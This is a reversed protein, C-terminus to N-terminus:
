IISVKKLVNQLNEEEAKKLLAFKRVKREASKDDKSKYYAPPDLFLNWVDIKRKQVPLHHHSRYRQGRGIIQQTLANTWTPDSIVIHRVGKLDMSEAGADTILIVNMNKSTAGSAGKGESNSSIGQNFEKLLERWDIKYEKFLKVFKELLFETPKGEFSSVVDEFLVPDVLYLVSFGTFIYSKKSVEPTNNLVSAVKRYVEGLARRRQMPTMEDSKKGDKFRYSRLTDILTFNAFYTRFDKARIPISKLYEKLQCQTMRENGCSWLSSTKKAHKSHICSLELLNEYLLPHKKKSIECRNMKGSKGLFAITLSDAGTKDDVFVHRKQLTSVGYHPRDGAMEANEDGKPKNWGPRFTCVRMLASATAAMSKSSIISKGNKHIINKMDNKVKESFSIWFEHTLSALRMIKVFEQQNTWDESYRRQIRGKRDVASWIMKANSKCVFAPTWAPPIPSHKTYAQFEKIKKPLTVKKGNQFYTYMYDDARLSQLPRSTKKPFAKRTFLIKGECVGKPIKVFTRDIVHGGSGKRNRSLSSDLAFMRTESKNFPKPLEVLNSMDKHKKKRNAEIEKRSVPPKNFRTVVDHRFKESKSGDIVSFIAGAKRLARELMRVGHELFSTYVVIKGEGRDIWNKVHEAIWDCKECIADKSNHIESLGMSLERFDMLFPKKKEYFLRKKYEKWTQDSMPISVDHEVVKAFDPSKKKDIVHYSVTDKLWNQFKKTDKTMEYFDKQNMVEREGKVMSILPVIDYLGNMYPTATLLLVKKCKSAFNLIHRTTSASANTFEHAEDVVLFTNSSNNVDDNRFFTFATNFVFKKANEKKSADPWFKYVENRFQSVTSKKLLFVARNVIKTRVLCAAAAAALLTKGTGTSHVALVGRNKELIFKVTDKQHRKLVVNPSELCKM